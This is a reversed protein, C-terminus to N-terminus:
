SGLAAKVAENTVAGEHTVTPVRVLEDTPDPKWDGERDLFLGLYNLFNKSLMQSAHLPHASPVNLPGLVEVGGCLVTEGPKTVACDGGAEAALDVIVSGPPIPQWRIIRSGGGTNTKQVGVGTEGELADPATPPRLDRTRERSVVSTSQPVRSEPREQRNPTV